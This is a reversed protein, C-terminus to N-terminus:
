ATVMEKRPPFQNVMELACCDQYARELDDAIRQLSARNERSRTDAAIGVAEKQADHILSCLYQLDIM